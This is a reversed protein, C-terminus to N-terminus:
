LLVPTESPFIFPTPRRHSLMSRPTQRPDCPNSPEMSTLSPERSDWSPIAGPRKESSFIAPL